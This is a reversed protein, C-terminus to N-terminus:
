HESHKAIKNLIIKILLEPIFVSHLIPVNQISIDGCTKGLVSEDESFFSLLSFMKANEMNLETKISSFVVSVYLVLFPPKM